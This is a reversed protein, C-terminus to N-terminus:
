WVCRFVVQVAEFECDPVDILIDVTELPVANADKKKGKKKTNERLEEEYDMYDPREKKDKFKKQCMKREKVEREVLAHYRDLGAQSWGGRNGGNKTATWRRTGADTDGAIKFKSRDTKDRVIANELMVMTMAMKEKTICEAVMKGHIKHCHERFKIKNSMLSACSKDKVFEEEKPLCFAAFFPRVHQFRPDLSDEEVDVKGHQIYDWMRTLKENSDVEGSENPKKVWHM